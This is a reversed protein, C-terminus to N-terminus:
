SRQRRLARNAANKALVRLRRRALNMRCADHFATARDPRAQVALDCIAVRDPWFQEIMPHNAIACSDTMDIESRDLQAKTLERLLHIGPAQARFEEDFAIKWFFSRGNSELLVGMALPRDGLALRAIRCKGDRALLRAASRVFTTLSPDSLFAGRNAKWGSAELVLFEETARRVESPTSAFTFTVSGQEELRRQRRLLDRLAKKSSRRTWVEDLDGGPHLVAREYEDLAKTQRGGVRAAAAIAAFLPGNKLIKPFVVGVTPRSEAIWDFFAELAAVAHVRDVLPTALATQKHQWLTTMTESVLANPAAVPFLAMLRRMGAIPGQRWVVVFRPRANAPFHRAAALAFGPEFFANPELTRGALDRWADEEQEMEDVGLKEVYLANEARSIKPVALPALARRGATGAEPRNSPLLQHFVSKTIWFPAAMPTM